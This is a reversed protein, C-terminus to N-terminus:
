YSSVIPIGLQQGITDLKKYTCSLIVGVSPHKKNVERSLLPCDEGLLIFEDDPTFIKSNGQLSFINGAFHNFM